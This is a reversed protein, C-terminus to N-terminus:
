VGFTTVPVTASPSTCSTPSTTTLAPWVTWPTTSSSVPAGTAAARTEVESPAPLEGKPVPVGQMVLKFHAILGEITGYVEPKPPLVYRWDDLVVPGSPIQDLAQTLIRDSQRLEEMRIAYRDFNDGKTGLPVEFEFNEYGSYPRAKRLDYNCGTARLGAGTVGWEIAEVTNYQAM